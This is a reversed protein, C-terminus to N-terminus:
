LFWILVAGCLLVFLNGFFGHVLCDGLTPEYVRANTAMWWGSVVVWVFLVAAILLKGLFFSM